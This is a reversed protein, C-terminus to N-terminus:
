FRVKVGLGGGGPIYAPAPRVKARPRERSRRQRAPEPEADGGELERRKIRRVNTTKYPQFRIQAVIIDAVLTGLLMWGMVEEAKRRGVVDERQETPDEDERAECVLSGAQFQRTRRCGDATVRYILLGLGAAGFVAEASLFVAGLARDGNYFHGIGLPFIAFVRSRAERDRVEVEQEQYARQLQAHKNKWAGLEAQVNDLDTRCAVLDARCQAGQRRARDMRLDLYLSFLEPTYIDQPMRWDPDADMLADLHAAARRRREDEPLTPDHLTADALYTLVKERRLPDTLEGAETVPELLRRAETYEGRGWAAEGAAVADQM